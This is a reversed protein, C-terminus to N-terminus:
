KFYLRLSSFYNLPSNCMIQKHCWMTEWFQWSHGRFIMNLLLGSCQQTVCFGFFLIQVIKQSYILHCLKAFIFYNGCDMFLFLTCKFWCPSVVPSLNLFYKQPLSRYSKTITLHHLKELGPDCCSYIKLFVYHMSGNFLINMLFIWSTYNLSLSFTLKPFKILFKLQFWVKLDNVDLLWNFGQSNLPRTILFFFFNKFGKFLFPFYIALRQVVKNM